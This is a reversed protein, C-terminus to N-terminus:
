PASDGADDVHQFAASAMRLLGFWSYAAWLAILLGSIGFIGRGTLDSQPGHSTLGAIGFTSGFLREGPGFGIWIPVAAFCTLLLCGLFQQVLKVTKPESAAISHTSVGGGSLLPTMLLTGALVFVMGALAVVWHPAHFAREAVPIIGVAVAVILLGTTAALIGVLLRQKLAAARAPPVVSEIEQDAPNQM